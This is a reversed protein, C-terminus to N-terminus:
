GTALQEAKRGLTKAAARSQVCAERKSNGRERPRAMESIVQKRVGDQKFIRAALPTRALRQRLCWRGFYHLKHHAREGKAAMREMGRSIDGGLLQRV